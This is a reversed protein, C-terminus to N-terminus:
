DRPESHGLEMALKRQSPTLASWIAHVREEPMDALDTQHQARRLGVKFFSPSHDIGNVHLRWLVVWAFKPSLYGHQRYYQLANRLIENREALALKALAELCAKLRMEAILSDLKRRAKTASLRENGDYVAVGFKLICHSGVWLEASTNDNRIKFHYRLQDKDCLKCTEIPRLYDKYDGTFRWERFAEPLRSAVSVPLINRRVSESYETPM